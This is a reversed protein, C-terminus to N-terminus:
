TKIRKNSTADAPDDSADILDAKRRTSGASHRSSSNNRSANLGDSSQSTNQVYNLMEKKDTDEAAGTGTGTDIGASASAGASTSPNVEMSGGSCVGSAGGAGSTSTTKDIAPSHTSYRCLQAASGLTELTTVDRGAGDASGGDGVYPSTQLTGADCSLDYIVPIGGVGGGGRMTVLANGNEISSAFNLEESSAQEEDEGEGNSQNASDLVVVRKPLSSSSSHVKFGFIRPVYCSTPASPVINEYTMLFIHPFSSGFFAGDIHRQSAPCNYLDRCKPCFLKYSGLHPEDALGVPLVAQGNCFARPCEGFDKHIYKRQMVQLGNTTVIFRAHILGYLLSSSQLFDGSDDADDQEQRDLITALTRNFDKPIFQKLGFLNFSDEIFQKDAECLVHNGSM